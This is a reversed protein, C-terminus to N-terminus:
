ISNIDAEIMRAVKEAEIAQRKEWIAKFPCGNKKVLNWYTQEKKTPRGRKRM